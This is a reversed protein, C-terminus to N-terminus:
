LLFYHDDDLPDSDLRFPQTAIGDSAEGNTVTSPASSHDPAAPAMGRPQMRPNGMVELTRRAIIEFPNKNRPM